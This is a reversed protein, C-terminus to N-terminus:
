TVLKVLECNGALSKVPRGRRLLRYKTRLDPGPGRGTNIGLELANSGMSLHRSDGGSSSGADMDAIISVTLFAGPRSGLRM